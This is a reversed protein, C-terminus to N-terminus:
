APRAYAASLLGFGFGKGSGVGAELALRFLSADEVKLLGDFLVGYLCLQHAEKGRHITDRAFDKTTVRCELLRFGHLGGKRELWAFQKEEEFIGLRKGNRKVTPNARLRFALASGAQPRPDYAKVEPSSLGGGLYGPSNDASIPAWQPEFNSQVLVVPYVSGDPLELRWLVREGAPSTSPFGSMISRHLEYPASIEKQVRRSRPNLIIRSLYM